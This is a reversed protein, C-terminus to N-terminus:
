IPYREDGDFERRSIIKYPPIIDKITDFVKQSIELCGEDCYFFLFGVGVQTTYTKGDVFILESFKDLFTKYKLIEQEKDDKYGTIMKYSKM